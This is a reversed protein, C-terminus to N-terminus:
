VFQNQKEDYEYHISKLKAKLEEMSLNMDQSLEELTSYKDRLYTNVVSLFMVPDNPLQNM